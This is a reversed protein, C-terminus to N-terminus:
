FLEWNNSAALTYCLLSNRPAAFRVIVKTIYGQLRGNKEEM